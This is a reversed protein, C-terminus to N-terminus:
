EKAEIYVFGFGGSGLHAGITPGINCLRKEAVDHGNEVLLQQFKECNARDHSYIFALEYGSDVNAEELQKMLQVMAKKNGICKKCIDLTGNENVTIIPKIRALEGLGTQAKTMRGGKYLYELTDIELCIRARKKLQEIEDAIEKASSGADRMEIAKEILIQEAAVATLSDVIYIEEYDALQKALNASQVTGSLGGSLLIAVVSDGQEKAAQFHTLFEEPSPQSTKPYDKKALLREYFAEKTLEYCDRYSEEGFTISLPACILNKEKIEQLEYDASSDIVIQVAM